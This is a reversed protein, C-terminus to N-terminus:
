SVALIGACCAKEMVERNHFQYCQQFKLNDGATGGIFPLNCYKEIGEFISTMNAGFDPFLFLVRKGDQAVKAVQRGIDEGAQLPQAVANASQLNYFKITDSKLGAIQVAYM